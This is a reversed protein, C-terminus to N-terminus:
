TAEGRRSRPGYKVRNPLGVPSFANVAQGALGRADMKAVLRALEERETPGLNRRRGRGRRVLDLARQREAPSLRQVHDRTLMAVEAVALLRLFPLRRLGPARAIVHAVSHPVTRQPM